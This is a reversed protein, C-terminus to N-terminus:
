GSFRQLQLWPFVYRWFLFIFIFLGSITAGAWSLTQFILVLLPVTLVLNFLHVRAAHSPFIRGKLSRAYGTIIIWDDFIFFLAWSLLAVLIPERPLPLITLVWLNTLVM